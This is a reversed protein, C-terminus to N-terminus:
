SCGLGPQEVIADPEIEIVCDGDFVLMLRLIERLM